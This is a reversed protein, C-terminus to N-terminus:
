SPVMVSRYRGFFFHARHMGEGRRPLPHRFRRSLTLQYLLLGPPSPRPKPGARSRRPLNCAVDTHGAGPAFTGPNAAPGPPVSSWQGANEGGAIIKRSLLATKRYGPGVGCASCPRAHVIGDGRAAPRRQSRHGHLGGDCQQDRQGEKGPVPRTGGSRGGEAPQRQREAVGDGRRQRQPARHHATRRRRAAPPSSPSIPTTNTASPMPSRAHCGGGSGINAPSAVPNTAQNAHMRRSPVCRAVFPQAHASFVRAHGFGGGATRGFVDVVVQVEPLHLHAVAREHRRLTSVNIKVKTNDASNRNKKM